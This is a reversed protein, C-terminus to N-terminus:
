RGGQLFDQYEQLEKFKGDAAMEAQKPWTGPDALKFRSGADDLIEKLREVSSTAMDRWTKIGAAHMLKEIAPGIGEVAKLDDQKFAKIAGSKILIKELKSDTMGKADTKGTDLRKQLDILEEWKGGAALGSQQVWTTPDIIKYKDGYKDLIAQIDATSKVGLLALSSVGNEKLVAEMKPGIGEIIQLNDNKISSYVSSAQAKAPEAAKAGGAAFGSAISAADVSGAGMSAKSSALSKKASQLEAEMERMRGKTLALDGDIEARGKRCAALDSELGSVKTNLGSVKAEMDAYMQKWKAWLAWGALLGLLFPLLWALWWPFSCFSLLIM